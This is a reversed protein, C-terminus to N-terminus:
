CIRVHHLLRSHTGDNFMNDQTSAPTVPTSADTSSNSYGKDEEDDTVILGILNIVLPPLKLPHRLGSVDLM